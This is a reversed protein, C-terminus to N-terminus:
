CASEEVKRGDRRRWVVMWGSSRNRGESVMRDFPKVCIEDIRVHDCEDHDMKYKMIM